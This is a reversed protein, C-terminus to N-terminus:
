GARQWRDARVLGWSYERRGRLAFGQAILLDDPPTLQQAQLGTLARFARYMVAHMAAARWRAPGRAPLSFDTNLWTAGPRAADALRDIVLALTAADFCDLVFHTAVVDYGAPEPTWTTADAHVWTAARDHRALRRRAVTIMGHSADVCTLDVDRRVDLLADAFRGHGEGVSLVRAGAGITHLWTRRARQLLRGALCSEAHDYYPAIADFSM